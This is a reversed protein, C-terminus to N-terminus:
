CNATNQTEKANKKEMMGKIERKFPTKAIVYTLVLACIVVRIMMDLNTAFVQTLQVFTMTGVTSTYGLTATQAENTIKSLSMAEMNSTNSTAASSGIQMMALEITTFTTAFHFVESASKLKTFTTTMSTKTTKALTSVSRTAPLLAASYLGSKTCISLGVINPNGLLPNNSLDCSTLGSSDQVVVDTIWNSNIYLQVPRNLRLSGTFHNGYSGSYGLYLLQLASPFSPLDGSMKNGDLWLNTMVVPLQSPISGTLANNDLSLHTVTSPIATGNISGNLGIGDWDIQSVRQSGDCTIGSATCCNSQLQTWLAPLKAQAGLNYAFQIM